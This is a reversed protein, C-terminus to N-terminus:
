KVITFKTQFIFKNLNKIAVDKPLKFTGTAYVIQDPVADVTNSIQCIKNYFWDCVNIDVTIKEHKSNWSAVPTSGIWATYTYKTLCIPVSWEFTMDAETSAVQRINVFNPGNVVTKNPIEQKSHISINKGLAEGISEKFVRAGSIRKMQNPDLVIEVVPEKMWTVNNTRWNFAVQYIQTVNTPNIVEIWWHATKWDQDITLDYGLCTDVGQVIDTIKYWNDKKMTTAQTIIKVDVPSAVSTNTPEKANGANKGIAILEKPIFSEITKYDQKKGCGTFLILMLFISVISLYKFM